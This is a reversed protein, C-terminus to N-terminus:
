RIQGLINVPGKVVEIENPKKQQLPGMLFNKEDPLSDMPRGRSVNQTVEQVMLMMEIIQSFSHSICFQMWEDYIPGQKFRSHPDPPKITSIVM